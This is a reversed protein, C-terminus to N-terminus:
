KNYVYFKKTKNLKPKPNKNKKNKRSNGRYTRVFNPNNEIARLLVIQKKAKRMTTCKSFVRKNKKNFVKYCKKGSIKRMSYPM